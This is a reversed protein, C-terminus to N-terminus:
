ILEITEIPRYISGQPTLTSQYFVVRKVQVKQLTVGKYSEIIQRLKMKDNLFKVRGLTLHPKFMKNEDEFGFPLLVKDVLRKINMIDQSYEIGAWIVKPEPKGFSGVGKIEIQFSKSNSLGNRLSESIDGVSKMSTEGLFMLTLHITKSDVWKVSDNKLVSKLKNWLNVLESEPTIDIAIFTRITTM